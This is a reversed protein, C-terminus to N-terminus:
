SFGQGPASAAPAPARASAGSVAETVAARISALLNPCNNIRHGEEGCGYCRSSYSRGGNNRARAADVDMANPDAPPRPTASVAPTPASARAPQAPTRAPQAQAQAPAARPAAAPPTQHQRPTTNRAAQARRANLSALRAERRLLIEQAEEVTKYDSSALAEMTETNLGDWFRKEIWAGGQDGVDLRSRLEQFETVYASITKSGQTLGQLRTLAENAADRTCFVSRFAEVWLDWSTRRPDAASSTIVASWDLAQGTLFTEAWAIQQEESEFSTFKAATTVQRLFRDALKKDDGAFPTPPNVRPAPVQAGRSTPNALEQDLRTQAAALSTSLLGGLTQLRQIDATASNIDQRLADFQAQFQGSIAQFVLQALRQEAAEDAPVGPSHVSEFDGM